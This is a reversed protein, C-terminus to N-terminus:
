GEVLGTLYQALSAIESDHMAYEVMDRVDATASIDPAKGPRHQVNGAGNDPPTTDDPHYGMSVLDFTIGAVEGVLEIDIAGTGREQRAPAFQRILETFEAKTPVLNKIHHQIQDLRPRDADFDPFDTFIPDDDIDHMVTFAVHQVPTRRLITKILDGVPPQSIAFLVIAEVCLDRFKGM